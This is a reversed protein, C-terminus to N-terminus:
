AKELRGEKLLELMERNQKATGSYFAIDNQAAIEARHSFSTDTEGVAKLADIISSTSGTYEKYYDGRHRGRTCIVTHGKKQTVLVDGVRCSDLGTFTIARFAGSAELVKKENGTHFNGPDMGAYICCARVLSSCDAETKTKTQIGYKIVGSRNNQDYGINSNKCAIIMGKALKEAFAKSKPRLIIWGKSHVYGAQEMVEKGTQDGAAGGTLKGREDMRASGFMIKESM